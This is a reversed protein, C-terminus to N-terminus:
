RTVVASHRCGSPMSGDAPLGAPGVPPLARLICIWIQPALPGVPPESILTELAELALAM